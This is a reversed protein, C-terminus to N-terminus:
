LVFPEKLVVVFEFRMQGASVPEFREGEVAAVSPVEAISELLHRVRQYNEDRAGPASGVGPRMLGAFAIKLPQEAALKAPANGESATALRMQELWVDGTLIFKAQIEGLFRLWGTRAEEIKRWADHQRQAEITKQQREQSRVAGLRLPALERELALNQAHAAAYLKHQHVMAPILAAVSLGAAVVLRPRWRRRGAQARLRPPLLNFSPQGARLSLAAAGVVDAFGPRDAERDFDGAEGGVEIGDTPDPLEVPLSLQKAVLGALGPLRAAGGVLILRLPNEPAPPRGFYVLTRATEQALRNAFGQIVPALEASNTDGLKWEEARAFDCGQEEAIQQTVGNGGLALSRAQFGNQDLLVLTTSRAGLNILLTPRVPVPQLMGGFGAALALVSPLLVSPALGAAALAACLPDLVELKAACLLVNFGHPNEGSIMRDWVVDTLPYPISQQGEFSIIKERKAAEVRPTNLMKMLTLHPPLVVTVSGAPKVRGSLALLAESTKQLWNGEQGAEVALPMSAHQELRLRGRRGGSFVALTTRSTGCDIITAHPLFLVPRM